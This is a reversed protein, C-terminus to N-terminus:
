FQKRSKVCPDIRSLYLLRHVSAGRGERGSTKQSPPVDTCLSLYFSSVTSVLSYTDPLDIKGSTTKWTINSPIVPVLKVPSMAISSTSIM